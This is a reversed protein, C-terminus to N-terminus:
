NANQDHAIFKSTLLVWNPVPTSDILHSMRATAGRHILMGAFLFTVLNIFLGFTGGPILLMQWTVPYTETGFIAGATTAAIL